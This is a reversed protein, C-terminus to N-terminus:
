RRRERQWNAPTMGTLRHFMRTLHAQDAFGTAAAIEVISLQSDLLLQCARTIRSNLQWRYPPMGTSAKFARTFHAPSLSTARALESLRTRGDVQAEMIEIARRLQWPKLCLKPQGKGTTWQLRAIEVLM